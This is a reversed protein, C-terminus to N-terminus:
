GVLPVFTGTGISVALAAAALLVGLALVLRDAGTFPHRRAFTRPTGADFGRADMATALRGGRRVAGVLLAFLTAAFLRFRALPNAGADIGRARRALGLLEWEDALLPLLRYAALAGIAFRAPVRLQQVLCDALDTPDITAFAVVGPLAIALVRLGLAGGAALSVSSLQLPGLHLYSVGGQDAAFLMNACGVLVAGVLVPWGRRLLRRYRLGGFPLAVLVGVLAVTPTVPDVSALVALSVALAAGLKALPNLRSVPADPPAAAPAIRM